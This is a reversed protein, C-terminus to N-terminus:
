CSPLAFDGVLGASAAGEFRGSVCTDTIADIILRGEALAPACSGGGGGSSECFIYASAALEYVGVDLAADVLVSVGRFQFCGDSFPACSRFSSGCELPSTSVSLEFFAGGGTITGDLFGDPARTPACGPEPECPSPFSPNMEATSTFTDDTM